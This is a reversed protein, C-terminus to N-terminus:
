TRSFLDKDLGFFRIVAAYGVLLLENGNELFYLLGVTIEWSRNQCQQARSRPNGHAPDVTDDAKVSLEIELGVPLM